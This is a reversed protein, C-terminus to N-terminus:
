YILQYKSELGSLVTDSLITQKKIFLVPFLFFRMQQADELCLQTSYFDHKASVAALLTFSTSAAKYYSCSRVSATPLPSVRVCVSFGHWHTQTHTEVHSQSLYSIYPDGLLTIGLDKLLLQWFCGGVSKVTSWMSNCYSLMKFYRWLPLCSVDLIDSNFQSLQRNLFFCFRCIDFFGNRFININYKKVM